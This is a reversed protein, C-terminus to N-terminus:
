TPGPERLSLGPLLSLQEAQPAVLADSRHAASPGRRKPRNTAGCATCDTHGDPALYVNRSSCKSCPGDLKRARHNRHKVINTVARAREKETCTIWHNPHPPHADFQATKGTVTKGMLVDAGCFKCVTASGDLEVPLASARYPQTM